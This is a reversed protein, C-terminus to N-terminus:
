EAPLDFQERLLKDYEIADAIVYLVEAGIKLNAKLLAIVEEADYPYVWVSDQLRQFGFQSVLNRVKQRLYKHEEKIDFIVLRWKGDWRRPKNQVYSYLLM